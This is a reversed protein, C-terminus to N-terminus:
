KYKIFKRFEFSNNSCDVIDNKVKSKANLWKETVDKQSAIIETETNNIQDTLKIYYQTYVEKVPYDFYEVPFSSTKIEDIVWEENPQWNSRFQPSIGDRLLSKTYNIDNCTLENGNELVIILETTLTVKKYINTTNDKLVGKFVHTVTNPKQM